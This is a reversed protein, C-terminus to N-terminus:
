INNSCKRVCDVLVARLRTVRMRLALVTTQRREAMQRRHESRARGRLLRCYDVLLQQEEASLSEFCPKLVSSIREIEEDSNNHLSEIFNLFTSGEKQTFRLREKIIYRAIGLCYRDVHPVIAGLSIKAAARDITEDAAAAPDSVGRLSFFGTLKEHLRTYRLGAEEESPSLARLFSAFAEQSVWTPKHTKDESSDTMELM